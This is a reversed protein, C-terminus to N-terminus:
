LSLPRIELPALAGLGAVSGHDKHAETGCSDQLVKQWTIEFLTKTHNRAEPLWPHAFFPTSLVSGRLFWLNKLDSTHFFVGPLGTPNTFYSTKAPSLTFERTTTANEAGLRLGFRSFVKQGTMEFLTKRNDPPARALKSFSAEIAQFSAWPGGFYGRPERPARKTREQSSKPAEQPGDQSRSM